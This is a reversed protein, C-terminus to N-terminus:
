CLALYTYFFLSRICYYFFLVLGTQKAMAYFAPLLFGVPWHTDSLLAHELTPICAYAHRCFLMTGLVNWFRFQLFCAYVSDVFGVSCLFLLIILPMLHCACHFALYLALCFWDVPIWIYYPVLACPQLLHKLYLSSGM